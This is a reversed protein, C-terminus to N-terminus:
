RGKMGFLTGVQAPSLAQDYVRVGVYNAVAGNTRADNYKGAGIIFDGVAAVPNSGTARSDGHNSQLVGNVYLSILGPNASLDYVGALHYWQGTSPQNTSFAYYFAGPTAVDTTPFAETNYTTGGDAGTLPALQLEFVSAHAGDASILEDYNYNLSPFYVWTSITFSKRNDFLPGGSVDAFAGATGDIQLSSGYMGLVSGSPGGADTGSDDGGDTGGDVAGGDVSADAAGADVVSANGAVIAATGKLTATHGNGSSDIATTAGPNDQFEWIAVALPLGGADGPVVPGADADSGTDAPESADPSSADGADVPNNADTGPSSDAPVYVDGEPASDVRADPSKSADPTQNTTADRGPAAGTDESSGSDAGETAGDDGSCGTLLLSVSVALVSSSLAFNKM